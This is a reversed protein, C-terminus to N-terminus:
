INVEIHQIHLFFAKVLRTQYKFSVSKNFLPHIIQYHVARITEM